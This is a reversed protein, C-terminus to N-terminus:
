PCSGAIRPVVRATSRVANRGSAKAEYLAKDAAAIFDVGCEDAGEPRFAVGGSVTLSRGWFRRSRAEVSRRIDEARREGDELTAGAMVVAFEEGGIRAALDEPRVSSELLSGFRSLVADGAAHGWTDNVKKFHDLDFVMLAMGQPHREASAIRAELFGDFARRNALGTLPDHLAQQRLRAALARSSAHLTSCVITTASLWIAVTLWESFRDSRGWTAIIVGYSTVVTATSLWALRMPMLASAVLVPWILFLVWPGGTNRTLAIPLCAVLSAIFLGTALPWIEDTRRRVVFNVGIAATSAWVVVAAAMTAAVNPRLAVGGGLTAIVSAVPKAVMLVGLARYGLTYDGQRDIHRVLWDNLRASPTASEVRRASSVTQADGFKPARSDDSM